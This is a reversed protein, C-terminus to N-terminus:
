VHRVNVKNYECSIMHKTALSYMRTCHKILKLRLLLVSLACKTLLMSVEQRAANKGLLFTRQTRERMGRVTANTYEYLNAAMKQMGNCTGFIMYNIYIYFRALETHEPGFFTLKSIWLKLNDLKQSNKGASYTCQWWFLVWYHCEIFRIDHLM